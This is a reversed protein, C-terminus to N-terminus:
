FQDSFSQHIGDVIEGPNFLVPGRYKESQPSVKAKVRVMAIAAKEGTPDNYDLPVQFIVTFDYIRFITSSDFRLGLANETELM